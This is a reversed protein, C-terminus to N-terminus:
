TRHANHVACEQPMGAMVSCQRRVGDKLYESLVCIRPFLNRKSGGSRYWSVICHTHSHNRCPSPAILGNQCMEIHREHEEESYWAANKDCQICELAL